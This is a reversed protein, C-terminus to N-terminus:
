LRGQSILHLQLVLVMAYSFAHAKKFSYGSEDKMWLVKRAAAKNKQYLQVLHKKGPRILALADALEQVSQPLLTSVLEAHKALQFLKPYTSNLALLSWDPEKKLLERIEAKSTFHQYVGLHLFDIKMYGLEEAETYPIAALGTLEDVPISQPYVGCPHPTLEGDKVLSAQTWRFYQSPSFSPATDIDIDGLSM